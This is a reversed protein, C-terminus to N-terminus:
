ESSEPEPVPTTDQTLTYYEEIHDITIGAAGNLGDSLIAVTKVDLLTRDTSNNYLYCRVFRDASDPRYASTSTGTGSTSGTYASGDQSSKIEYYGSYPAPDSNGAVIKFSFTVTPPTLTNTSRDKIINDATAEIYRIYTSQGPAGDKGQYSISYSVAGNSYSTKTWLYSGEPITSPIETYWTTPETTPSDSLGYEVSDVINVEDGGLTQIVPNSSSTNLFMLSNPDIPYKVGDKMIYNKLYTEEIIYGGSDRHALPWLQTGDLDKLVIDKNLVDPM